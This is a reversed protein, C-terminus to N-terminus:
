WLYEDVRREGIYIPTEEYCERKLARLLGIRECVDRFRRLAGEQNIDTMIVLQELRKGRVVISGDDQKEITYSRMSTDLAEPTITPITSNDEENMDHNSSSVMVHTRENRNAIVIELLRKKLEETHGHTAGSISMWVDIGDKHLEEVIAELEEDSILDIKNLVVYEQKTALTPSYKELESRITKYDSILEKAILKASHAILKTRMPDLIHVLVGCREIHRLFQHGLGKGESAGEILGPVDCVVYRRDDAHVVGLNPVLTTFEYEAIKPKAQSIVSILTSKGVSPLGIIGVDAVLKLELQLKKEEGPEGLEAFDPRQRTAGKFHANGFGGRGGKALCYSAGNEALDAILMPGSGPGSEEYVLTGPPVKLYLDEGSRGTKEQGGGSQGNKGKFVKTSAFDSLTDTNENAILYIDGGKGGNGGDPGGKPVYKERRWSVIGPGGKGATVTITAEDLFM